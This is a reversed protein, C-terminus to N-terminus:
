ERPMAPAPDPGGPMKVQWDVGASECMKELQLGIDKIEDAELQPFRRSGVDVGATKSADELATRPSEPSLANMMAWAKAWWSIAIPGEAPPSEPKEPEPNKPEGKKTGFGSLGGGKGHKGEPPGGGPFVEDLTTEGDKLATILGRLVALDDLTVDEIGKRGLKAIVREPTVNFEKKFYALAVKRGEALTKEDGAAVKKVDDFIKKTLAAPVVKSIANRFAIACAANSTVAVMDDNYRNGNKDTIRRRVEVSVYVNHELDHCVGQAVVEKEGVEIVRAGYRLNGWSSAIIEAFRVSPGSIVKGGRPLSYYCSGATEEDLLALDRVRGLFQAVSRPFRHATAIQIDIEARNIIELSSVEETRAMSTSPLVEAEIVDSEPQQSKDQKKAKVM